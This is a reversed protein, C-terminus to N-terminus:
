DAEPRPTAEQKRVAIGRPLRLRYPHRDLFTLLMFTMIMALVALAGLTRKPYGSQAVPGDPPAITYAKIWAQPPAGQRAQQAALTQQITRMVISFTNQTAVPDPATTTVTVYPNSYNPFDENNLNVLAVNYEATGGAARVLDQTKQSMMSYTTVETTALLGDYYNVSNKLSPPIFSVTATTMYLPKTHHFYYALGAVLVLLAIAAITHRRLLAVLEQPSM